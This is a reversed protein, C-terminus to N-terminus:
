GLRLYHHPLAAEDCVLLDAIFRVTEAATWRSRPSRWVERRPGCIRVAHLRTPAPDAPRCWLLEVTVEGPECWVQLRYDEDDGVWETLMRSRFQLQDLDTLLAGLRPDTSQDPGAQTPSSLAPARSM